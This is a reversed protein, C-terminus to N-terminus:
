YGWAQNRRRRLQGNDSSGDDGVLRELISAAASLCQHQEPTATSLIQWIENQDEVASYDPPTLDRLVYEAVMGVTHFESEKDLILALVYPLYVARIRGRIM